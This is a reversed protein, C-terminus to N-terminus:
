FPHSLARLGQALAAKFYFHDVFPFCTVRNGLILWPVNLLIIVSQVLSQLVSHVLKGRLRCSNGRTEEVHKSM